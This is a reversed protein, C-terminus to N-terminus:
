RNAQPPHNLQSALREATQRQWTVYDTGEPLTETVTVMPVNAQKAANEIQKTADSETQPNFLLAAIQHTDLLDLMAALDAPSPDDGEEMAKGFGEPTRDTVGANILLYHAVPETAVVSVGPHTQAISRETQVVADAQKGFQAANGRYAAANASDVQSLDDAIKAAVAKATAPDYFVHENAPQASDALLSYANVTTIGKHGALVDDVWHDYGGGNYVVLTADAIAAADAPSAEYSHPDAAGSTIISKVTAHQGAVTAAVNGWVDTSAVVTPQASKTTNDISCGAVASAVLLGAGLVAGVLSRSRVAGGRISIFVTKL